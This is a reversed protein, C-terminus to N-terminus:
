QPVMCSCEHRPNPEEGGVGSGRGRGCYHSDQQSSHQRAPVHVHLVPIPCRLPGTITEPHSRGRRHSPSFHCSSPRRKWDRRQRVSDHQSRGSAFFLLLFKFQFFFDCFRIQIKPVIQSLHSNTDRVEACKHITDPGVGGDVEIDLSPFQSRLWSVQKVHVNLIEASCKEALLFFFRRTSFQVITPPFFGVRNEYLFLAVIKTIFM